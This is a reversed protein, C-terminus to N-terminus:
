RLGVRGHSKARKHLRDLHRAVLFLTDGRGGGDFDSLIHPSLLADSAEIFTYRSHSDSLHGIPLSHYSM